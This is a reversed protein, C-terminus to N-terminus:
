ARRGVRWRGLVTGDEEVLAMPELRVRLDPGTLIRRQDGGVVLPTWTLAVEDVLGERLLSSFLGPGGESLLQRLGRGHLEAVARPLDVEDVGATVVHEPGLVERARDLGGRDAGARTVLVCSGDGRATAAVTPPLEGRNSVVVLVPAAADESRLVPYGEARLTGAGVLVADSLRRLLRFVRHDAPTNISGSSGDAGSVAGDLTAVFNVRLWPDAPAAYLGRLAEDDLLSGPGPSGSESLLLRM